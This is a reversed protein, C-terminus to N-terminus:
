GLMKQTAIAAALPDAIMSMHDAADKLDAFAAAPEGAKQADIVAILTMAHHGLLEETAAKPLNGDTASELFAGFEGAYAALDDKAQQAKATDGTAVAMTYDVFFGIHKKWLPAFAQGAADGYVSTIAATLDDSNQDLAAAAAEFGAQRGGLAEGTAAGALYVHAQLMSTLAARLDSATLGTAAPSPTSAATTAPAMSMATTNMSVTTPSAASASGDGNDDGCAALTLVAALGLAALSRTRM